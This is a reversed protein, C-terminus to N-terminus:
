LPLRLRVTPRLERFGLKYYFEELGGVSHLYITEAGRSRLWRYGRTLLARALGRGRSTHAVALMSVYGSLGGALNTHLYVEIFGAPTGVADEALIVAVKYRRYLDEYYPKLDDAEVQEWGHDRFADNRVVVLAELDERSKHPSAERLVYGPPAEGRPEGELVMLAGARMEVPSRFLRRLLMHRCGYRYGAHIDVVGRCGKSLLWRAAHSVMAEAVSLGLGPPIRPDPVPVMMCPETLHAWAFGLTTGGSSVAALFLRDDFDGHFWLDVIGADWPECYSALGTTLHEAKIIEAVEESIRGGGRYDSVLRFM